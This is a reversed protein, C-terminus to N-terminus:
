CVVFLGACVVCLWCRVDCWSLCVVVLLCCCVVFLVCAAGVLLLCGDVFLVIHLLLVAFLVCFLVGCIGFLSSWVVFVTCCVVGFVVCCMVCM